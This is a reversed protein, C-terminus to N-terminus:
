PRTAANYATSLRHVPPKAMRLKKEDITKRLTEALDGSFPKVLYADAGAAIGDKIDQPFGLATYFVVPTVPDIARLKRCLEFSYGSNVLGDLLYLDFTGSKAFEVAEDFRSATIVEFNAMGLTFTVLEISDIDDELYMVKLRRPQDDIRTSRLEM